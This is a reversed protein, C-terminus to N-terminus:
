YSKNLESEFPHELAPRKRMLRKFGIKMIVDKGLIEEISNLSIGIYASIEEVSFGTEFFNVVLMKRTYEPTFLEHGEVDEMKKIDNFSTAVIDKSISQGREGNKVLISKKRGTVARIKKLNNELVLPLPRNIGNFSVTKKDWNICDWSQLLFEEVQSKTFGYYVVLCFIVMRVTVKPKSSQNFNEIIKRVNQPTLYNNYNVNEAVISEDVFINLAETRIDRFNNTTIFGRRELERYMETIHSCKSRVIDLSIKKNDKKKPKITLLFNIFDRERINSLFTYLHQNAKPINLEPEVQTCYYNFFGFLTSFYVNWDKYAKFAKFQAISKMFLTKQTDFLYQRSFYNIAERESKSKPSLSCTIVVKDLLAEGSGSSKESIIDSNILYYKKGNTLIGWTIHSIDMYNVIQKIEKEGIDLDGRKTEVYVGEKSGRIQLFVDVKGADCPEEYRYKITDEDYGIYKLFPIVINNKITEENMTKDNELETWEQNLKKLWTDMRKGRQCYFKKIITYRTKVSYELSIKM